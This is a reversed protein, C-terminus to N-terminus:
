KPLNRKIQKEKLDWLPYRRKKDFLFGWAINEKYVIPKSNKRSMKKSYKYLQTKTVM